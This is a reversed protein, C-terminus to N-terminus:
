AICILSFSNCCPDNIMNKFDSIHICFFFLCHCFVHHVCTITTSSSLFLGENWRCVTQCLAPVLFCWELLKCMYVFFSNIHWMMLFRCSPLCAHVQWFMFYFCLVHVLLSCGFNLAVSGLWFWIALVFYSFPLFFYFFWLDWCILWVIWLSSMGSSELLLIYILHQLRGWGWRVSFLLCFVRCAISVVSQM